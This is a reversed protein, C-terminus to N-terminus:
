ETGNGVGLKRFHNNAVKCDHSSFTLVYDGNVEGVLSFWM